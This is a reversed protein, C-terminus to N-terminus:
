KASTRIGGKGKELWLRYGGVFANANAGLRTKPPLTKLKKVNGGGLIVYDANLAARLEEVVRAVYAVM